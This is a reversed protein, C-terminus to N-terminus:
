RQRRIPFDCGRARLAQHKEAIFDRTLHNPNAECVRRLQTASLTHLWDLLRDESVVIIGERVIAETPLALGVMERGRLMWYRDSAAFSSNSAVRSMARRGTVATVLFEDGHPAVVVAASPIAESIAVVSQMLVARAAIAEVSLSRPTRRHQVSWFLAGALALAIALKLWVGRDGRMVSAYVLPVALGLLPLSWLGLRGAVSSLGGAAGIFPNLVVLWFLSLVATTVPLIHRDRPVLLRAVSTVMGLLVEPGYAPWNSLSPRAGFQGVWASVRGDNWLLYGLAVAPVALVSAGIARYSWFSAPRIIAATAILVVVGFAAATSHATFCLCSALVVLMVRTRSRHRHWGVVAVILLYFAVMGFTNSPFEFSLTPLLSSCGLLLAALFTAPGSQTLKWVLATGLAGMAFAGIAAGILVALEASGTALRLLAFTVISLISSTPYYLGGTEVLSEVQVVYYYADTGVLVPQQAAWHMRVVTAVAILFLAGLLPEVARHGRAKKM